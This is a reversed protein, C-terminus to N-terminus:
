SKGILIFTKWLLSNSQWPLWLYDNLCLDLPSWRESLSCPADCGVIDCCKSWLLLSTTKQVFMELFIKPNSSFGWCCWSPTMLESTLQLLWKKPGVDGTSSIFRQLSAAIKAAWVQNKQKEKGKPAGFMACCRWSELDGYGRLEWWLIISVNLLVMEMWWFLDFWWRWSFEFQSWCILYTIESSFIVMEMLQCRLVGCCFRGPPCPSDWGGLPPQAPGVRSRPANSGWCPSRPRGTASGPTKQPGQFWPVIRCHSCHSCTFCCFHPNENPTKKQVPQIRRLWDHSRFGPVLHNLSMPM